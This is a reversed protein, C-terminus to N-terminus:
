FYGPPCPQRPCAYFAVTTHPVDCSKDGCSCAWGIEVRDKARNYRITLHNRLLRQLEEATVQHKGKNRARKSPM